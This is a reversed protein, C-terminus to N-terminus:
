CEKDSYFFPSSSNRGEGYEEQGVRVQLIIRGMWARYRFAEALLIILKM